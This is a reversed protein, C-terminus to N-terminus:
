GLFGLPPKPLKRSKQELGALLHRGKPTIIASGDERDHGDRILFVFDAEELSKAIILDEGFLPTAKGADALKELLQRERDTM